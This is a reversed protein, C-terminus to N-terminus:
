QTVIGIFVERILQDKTLVKSNFLERNVANKINIELTDQVSVEILREFAVTDFQSKVIDRILAQRNPLIKEVDKPVEFTVNIIINKIKNQSNYKTFIIEEPLSWEVTNTRDIVTEKKSGEPPQTQEEPPPEKKGLLKNWPTFYAIGIALVVMIGGVVVKKLLGGTSKKKAPKELAEESGKNELEDEM